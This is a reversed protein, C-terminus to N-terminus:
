FGELLKSVSIQLGRAIKLLTTFSPNLDGREIKGPVNRHLGAALALKEQSIHNKNRLKRIRRGLAARANAKL